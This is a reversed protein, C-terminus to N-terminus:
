CSRAAAPRQPLRHGPLRRRAAGSRSGSRTTRDLLCKPTRSCSTCASGPGHGQTTVVVRWGAATWERLDAVAREIEGRYAPPPQAAFVVADDDLDEDATFPSLSWWPLGISGAHAKVDV